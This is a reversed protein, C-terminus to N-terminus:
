TTATPVAIPLSPLVVQPGIAGTGVGSLDIRPKGVQSASNGVKEKHRVWFHM